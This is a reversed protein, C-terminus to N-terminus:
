KLIVEFTISDPITGSEYNFGEHIDIEVRSGKLHITQWKKKQRIGAAEQFALIFEKVSDSNINSDSIQSVGKDSSVTLGENTLSVKQNHRDLVVNVMKDVLSLATTMKCLVQMITLNTKRM